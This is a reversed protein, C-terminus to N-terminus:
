LIVRNVEFTGRVGNQALNCINITAENESWRKWEPSSLTIM